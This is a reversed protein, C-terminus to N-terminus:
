WQVTGLAVQGLARALELSRVLGVETARSMAVVESKVMEAAPVPGELWTEQEEVRAKRQYEMWQWARPAGIESEEFMAEETSAVAM